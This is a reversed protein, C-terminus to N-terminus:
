EDTSKTRKWWNLRGDDFRTDIQLKYENSDFRLQCNKEKQIKLLKTHIDSPTQDQGGLYYTKISLLLKDDVFSPNHPTSIREVHLVLYLNGVWAYHETADFTATLYYEVGCLTELRATFDKYEKLAKEIAWGADRVHMDSFNHIYM